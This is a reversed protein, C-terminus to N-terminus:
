VVEEVKQTPPLFRNSLNLADLEAFLSPTLAPILRRM